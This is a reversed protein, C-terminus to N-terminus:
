SSQNSEEAITNSEVRTEKGNGDCIIVSNSEIDAGHTLHDDVRFLARGKIAQHADVRCPLSIPDIHAKDMLNANGPDHEIRLVMQKVNKKRYAIDLELRTISNDIDSPNNISFLFMYLRFQDEKFRSIRRDFVYPVLDLRRLREQDEALAQSKRASRLSLYAAIASVIAALTATAAEWFPIDFRM